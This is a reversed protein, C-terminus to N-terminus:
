FIGAGAFIKRGGRQIQKRGQAARNVKREM